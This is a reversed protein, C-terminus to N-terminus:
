HRAGQLGGTHLVVIRQGTKFYGKQLLDFVAYLLKGTYVPELTISHSAYFQRVFQELDATSKAFGGFHYDQIIQWNTYIQNQSLLQKVERNLFGAGKLAAVGTVRCHVPAAAILGALTTGTGCAVFLHEFDIPMEAVIESVGKLALASAGGEPLWYQNSSLDAMDSDKYARLMRYDGRSVFRLEMGWQSLDQLTRNFIKPQEGRVYGITQLGLSKGAFALAHLHNSYAGGMSVLTDAGKVLADNLPYKLKRWKNGSIIPHLLDDRKLWLRIRLDSLKPDIIPSLTSVGLSNELARLRPHLLTM